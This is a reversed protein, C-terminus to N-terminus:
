FTKFCVNLGSVKKMNQYFFNVYWSCTDCISSTEGIHYSRIKQFTNQMKWISKFEQSAQAIQGRNIFCRHRLKIKISQVFILISYIMSKFIFHLVRYCTPSLTPYPRWFRTNLSSNKSIVHFVGPVLSLFQYASSCLINFVEAKFVLKNLYNFSQIFVTSINAFRMDILSLYGSYIFLERLMLSVFLGIVFTVFWCKVFLICAHIAFLCTSLCNANYVYSLYMNAGCHSWYM